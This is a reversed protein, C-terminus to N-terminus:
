QTAIQNQENMPIIDQAIGPIGATTNGPPAEEPRPMM